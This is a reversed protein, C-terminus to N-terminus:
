QKKVEAENFLPERMYIPYPNQLNVYDVFAQFRISGLSIDKLHEVYRQRVREQPTLKGEKSFAISKNHDFGYAM